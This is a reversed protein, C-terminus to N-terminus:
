LQDLWDAARSESTREPHTEEPWEGGNKILFKIDGAFVVEDDRSTVKVGSCM